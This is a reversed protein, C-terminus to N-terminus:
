CVYYLLSQISSPDPMVVFKRVTLRASCALYFKCLVLLSPWSSSLVYAGALVLQCGALSSELAFYGGDHIALVFELFFYSVRSASLQFTDHFDNFPFGLM